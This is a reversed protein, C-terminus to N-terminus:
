SMYIGEAAQSNSILSIETTIDGYVSSYGESVAYYTGPQLGVQLSAQLSSCAPGNDDLSTIVNGAEDLIYLYTDIQSSCHSVQVTAAHNLSFRYFIDDSENNFMDNGFGNTPHNNRTDTFSAGFQLQGAEIPYALNAGEPQAMAQVFSLLALTLSLLIARLTFNHQM